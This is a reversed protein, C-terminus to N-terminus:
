PTPLQYATFRKFAIHVLGLAVDDWPGDLTDVAEGEKDRANAQHPTTDHGRCARRRATTSDMPLRYRCSLSNAKPPGALPGLIAEVDAIPLWDCASAPREATKIASATQVRTGTNPRGDNTQLDSRGAEGTYAGAALVPLVILWNALRNRM